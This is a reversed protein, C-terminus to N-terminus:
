SWSWAPCMRPESETGTKGVPWPGSSDTWSQSHIGAVLALPRTMMWDRGSGRINQLSPCSLILNIDKPFVIKAEYFFTQKTLTKIMCPISNKDLWKEQTLRSSGKKKIRNIHHIMNISKAFILGTKNEQYLSSPRPEQIIQATNQNLTKCEHDYYLQDAFNVKRM